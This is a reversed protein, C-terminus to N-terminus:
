KRKDCSGSVEMRFVKERANNGTTEKIEQINIKRMYREENGQKGTYQDKVYIKRRTPPDCPWFDCLIQTNLKAGQLMTILM